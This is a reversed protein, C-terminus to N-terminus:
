AESVGSLAPLMSQQGLSVDSTLEQYIKIIM